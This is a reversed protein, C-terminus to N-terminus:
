FGMDKKWQDRDEQSMEAFMTRINTGRLVKPNRCNRAIHGKQQCNYCTIENGGSRRNRDIDMANPDKQGQVTVTGPAYTAMNGYTRNNPPNTNRQRNDNRQGYNNNRQQPIIGPNNRKGEYHENTRYQRDLDAARRVWNDMNISGNANNEPLPFTLQLRNRLGKNLGRKFEELAATENYGSRLYHSQFIVIYEECTMNGQELLRISEIAEATSTLLGFQQNLNRIFMEYDTFFHPPIITAPTTAQLARAALIETNRTFIQDRIADAWCTAHDHNGGSICSLSILIKKQENSVNALAFYAISEQVFGKVRNPNGDYNKPLNPKSIDRDHPPQPVTLNGLHTNTTTMAPLLAGIATVLNGIAATIADM